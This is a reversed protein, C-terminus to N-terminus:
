SVLLHSLIVVGHLRAIPRVGRRGSINGIVSWHAPPCEGKVGIRWSIFVFVDLESGGIILGLQHAPVVAEAM